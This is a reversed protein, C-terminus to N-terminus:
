GGRASVRGLEASRCSSATWFPPFARSQARARAVAARTCSATARGHGLIFPVSILVAAMAPIVAIAAVRRTVGGVRRGFASVVWRLPWPGIRELRPMDEDQTLRTFMTFRAVLRPDSHRLARRIEALIRHQRRTTLIMPRM